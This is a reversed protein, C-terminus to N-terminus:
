SRRDRVSCPPSWCSIAWRATPSSPRSWHASCATRSLKLEFRGADTRVRVSSRPFADPITEALAGDNGIEIITQLAAALDRGDHSLVPTRTGVQSQRAPAHTPGSIIMSVGSRVQERVVLLEPASVPDVVKTLVSESTQLRNTPDPDM